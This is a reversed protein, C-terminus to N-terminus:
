RCSAKPKNALLVSGGVAVPRQPVKTTVALPLPESVPEAAPAEVATQAVPADAVPADAPAADIKKKRRAQAQGPSNGGRSGSRSRCTSSGGEEQVRKPKAPAEEAVAEVPTAEAAVAQAASSRRNGGAGKKRRVRKPKAPAELSRRSRRPKL